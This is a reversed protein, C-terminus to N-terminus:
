VHARGIKDTWSLFAVSVDGVMTEAIKGADEENMGAGAHLIGAGDLLELTDELGAAGYDMSHNNALSAFTVDAEKLSEIGAPRSILLVDKMILAESEDETLPAEVNAITVDAAALQDAVTALASAGGHEDVYTGVERGFIIDGTSAFTVSFPDTRKVFAPESAAEDSAAQSSAASSSNVFTVSAYGTSSSQTSSSHSMGFAVAVGVVLVIIAAIGILLVRPPLSKFFTTM